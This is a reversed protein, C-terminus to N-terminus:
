PVVGQYVRLQDSVKDAAGGFADLMRSIDRGERVPRVGPDGAPVPQVSAASPGSKANRAIVATPVSVNPAPCLWVPAIPNAARFDALAKESQAHLTEAKDAKAQLKKADAAYQARVSNKGADYVHVYSFAILILVLVAVAVELAYRWPAIFSLVKQWIGM